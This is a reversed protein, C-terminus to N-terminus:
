SERPTEPDECIRVLLTLATESLRTWDPPVPTVRRREGTESELLLWGRAFELPMRVRRQLVTRRELGSRRERRVLRATAAAGSRDTFSRAISETMPVGPLCTEPHAYRARADPRWQM